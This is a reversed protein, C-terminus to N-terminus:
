KQYTTIQSQDSKRLREKNTHVSQGDQRYNADAINQNSSLRSVHIMFNELKLNGVIPRTGVNLLKRNYDGKVKIRTLQKRINKM